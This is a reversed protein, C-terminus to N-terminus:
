VVTMTMVLLMMGASVSFPSSDLVPMVHKNPCRAAFAAVVDWTDHLPKRKASWTMWQRKLSDSNNDRRGAGALWTM